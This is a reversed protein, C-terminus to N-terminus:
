KISKLVARRMTDVPAKKNSWLELQKAGQYVFMEIGSVTKVKKKKALRMLKTELPNYILDFIVQGKHIIKAPVPSELNVGKMGIPTANILIDYDDDIIESLKKAQGGFEKALKKASSLNRNYITLKAKEKNVLFAVPKAAGGAGLLAIRKSKFNIKKLAKEVGYSDTNYGIFKGKKLVITNVAGIMRAEKNIKDVLKKVEVKFPMTVALEAPKVLSLLKKIQAVSDVEFAEYVANLKLKKFAANHMVPSKSHTIPNGVVGCISTKSTAKHNNWRMRLDNVSLQGPATEQGTVLSAYTWESGLIPALVRTVIGKRGMGLVISKFKKNCLYKQCEFLTLVNNFSNVWSVIKILNPKLRKAKIVLKKLEKITPTTDFNHWSIIIKTGGKEKKLTKLFIEDTSLEVDIYSPKYKLVKQLLELRKKESGKFKGGDKQNRCTAIVPKKCAAFLKELSVEPYYDLRLEILDAVKNAKSVKRVIEALSSAKIPVCIM